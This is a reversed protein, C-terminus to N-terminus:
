VSPNKLFQSFTPLSATFSPIEFCSPEPFVAPMRQRHIGPTSAVDHEFAGRATHHEVALTDQISHLYQKPIYINASSRPVAADPTQLRSGYGYGVPPSACALTPSVPCVAAATTMMVVMRRRIIIVIWRRESEVVTVATPCWPIRERNLWPQQFGRMVSRGSAVQVSAACEDLRLSSYLLVTAQNVPLSLPLSLCMSDLWCPWHLMVAWARPAPPRTRAVSWQVIAATGDDVVVVVVSVVAEAGARGDRGSAGGIISGGGVGGGVTVAGCESAGGEAGWVARWVVSKAPAVASHAAHTSHASHVAAAHVSGGVAPHAPISSRSHHASRLVLAEGLRHVVARLRSELHDLADDAGKATESLHELARIHGRM